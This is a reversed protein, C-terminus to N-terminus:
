LIVFLGSPARGPHYDIQTARGNIFKDVTFDQEAVFDYQTIRGKIWASFEQKSGLFAHLDRANATPHVTGGINGSEIKILENM